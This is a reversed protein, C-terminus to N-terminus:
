SQALIIDKAMRMPVQATKNSLFHTFERIAAKDSDSLHSLKKSLLHDVATLHISKIQIPIEKLSHEVQKQKWLQEFEAVHTAVIERCKAAEARREENNRASMAQIDEMSHLVLNRHRTAVQPDVNMPLALDIILKKATSAGFIREYNDLTIIHNKCSTCVIMMDYDLRSAYFEEFTMATGGYLEALKEANARTRNVFYTKGVNLKGVYKTMLQITEGAGIFIVTPNKRDFERIFQNALYAVSTPRAGIETDSFVSKAVRAAAEFLMTLQHGALGIDKAEQFARKIQGVIQNEGIVMSDLSTVVRFMHHIAESGSYFYFHRKATRIESDTCAPQLTRILQEIEEAPEAAARQYFVFEVRNCTAVYVVEEWNLRDRVETLREMRASPEIVFREIVSLPATKFNIGIVKFRRM